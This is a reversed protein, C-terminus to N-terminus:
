RGIDVKRVDKDELWIVGIGRRFDVRYEFRGSKEKAETVAGTRDKYTPLNPNICVVESGVPIPSQVPETSVAAKKVLWSHKGLIRTEGIVVSVKANNSMDFGPFCFRRQGAAATVAVVGNGKSHFHGVANVIPEWYGILFDMSGRGGTGCPAVDSLLLNRDFSLKVLDGNSKSALVVEYTSSPPVFSASKVFADGHRHSIGMMAAEAFARIAVKPLDSPFPSESAKKVSEMKSVEAVSSDLKKVIDVLRKKGSESEVIPAIKVIEQRIGEMEKKIASAEEAADRGELGRILLARQGVIEVQENYHSITQDEASVAHDDFLGAGASGYFSAKKALVCSPNDDALRSAFAHAEGFTSFSPPFDGLIASDRDSMVWSGPDSSADDGVSFVFRDDERKSIAIFM